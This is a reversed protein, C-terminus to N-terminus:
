EEIQRHHILCISKYLLTWEFTCLFPTCVRQVVAISNQSPTLTDTQTWSEEKGVILSPFSSKMNLPIQVLTQPTVFKSPELKDSVSTVPVFLCEMRKDSIVTGRASWQFWNGQLYVKLELRQCKNRPLSVWTSWSIFMSVPCGSLIFYKQPLFWFNLTTSNETPPWCNHFLSTRWSKITSKLIYM